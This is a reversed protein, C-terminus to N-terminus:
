SLNPRASHDPVLNPPPAQLHSEEEGAYWVTTGVVSRQVKKKINVYKPFNPFNPFSSIARFKFQLHM